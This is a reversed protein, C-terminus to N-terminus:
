NISACITFFNKCPKTFKNKHVEIYRLNNTQINHYTENMSSINVIRGYHHQKMIKAVAQM